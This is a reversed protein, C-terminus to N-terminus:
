SFPIGGYILEFKSKIRQLDWTEKLLTKLHLEFLAKLIKQEFEM